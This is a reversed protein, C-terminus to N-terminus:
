WSSQGTLLTCDVELGSIIWDVQLLASEREKSRFPQTNEDIALDEAARCFNFGLNESSFTEGFPDFIHDEMSFLSLIDYDDDELHDFLDNEWTFTTDERYTIKCREERSLLHADGDCICKKLCCELVTASPVESEYLPFVTPGKSQTYPGNCVRYNRGPADPYCSFAASSLHTMKPERKKQNELFAPETTVCFAYTSDDPQIEGGVEVLSPQTTVCLASEAKRIINGETATSSPFIFNRSREATQESWKLTNPSFNAVLQNTTRIPLTVSDVNFDSFSRNQQDNYSQLQIFPLCGYIDTEAQQSWCSPTLISHPLNYFNPECEENVSTHIGDGKIRIRRMRECLYPQGRLFMEHYYAGRDKGIKLRRFCYLNLQRQFSTFKSQRFYKPLFSKVFKEINNVRFARGHPQWSVVSEKGNRESDHLMQHLTKPFARSNTNSWNAEITFPLNKTEQLIHKQSSQTSMLSKATPDPPQKNHAKSTSENPSIPGGARTEDHSVSSSVLKSSWVISHIKGGEAHSLPM